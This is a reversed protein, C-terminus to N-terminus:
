SLRDIVPESDGPVACGIVCSRRSQPLLITLKPQGPYYLSAKEYKRMRRNKYNETKRSSKIWVWKLHGSTELQSNLSKWGIKVERRTKKLPKIVENFKSKLDQNVKAIEKLHINTNEQVNSLCTSNEEQLETFHRNM